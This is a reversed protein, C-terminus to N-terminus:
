YYVLLTFPISHLLHIVLKYCSSMNIIIIRYYMILKIYKLTITAMLQYLIMYLDCKSKHIKTIIEGIRVLM